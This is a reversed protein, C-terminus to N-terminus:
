KESPGLKGLSFSQKSFPATGSYKCSNEVAYSVGEIAGPLLCVPLFVLRAAFKLGSHKKGYTVTEAAETDEGMVRRFSAVPAGIAIGALLSTMRLPLNTNGRTRKGKHSAQDSSPSNQSDSPSSETGAAGTNQASNGTDMPAQTNQVPENNPRSATSPETKEASNTEKSNTETAQESKENADSQCIALLYDSPVEDAFVEETTVAFTSLLLLIFSYHKLSPM